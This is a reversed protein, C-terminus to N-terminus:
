KGFHTLFRLLSWHEIGDTSAGDPAHLTVVMKPYNDQIQLLNGFERDHTAQDAILYAVQIYTRENRREAVFDIELNDIQGIWVKYGHSVLHHFICNEMIKGIDAARFGAIANRIGIDQFYYKEGVEFIRKGKIDLRRVVHIIQSHTLYSLYDMITNISISIKQSKLYESIRKANLLSGINDALFRTLRDMFDLNRVSYRTIVDTYVISNFVTRLYDFVVEDTLPLNKLFPMGGYKLFADLAKEDASLGHFTLFESFDLGFVPIEIYRGGLRTSLETSLMESNSGTIYVDFNAKAAFSRISNEFQDIEQVEDVMLYNILGPAETAQTRIYETLVIDTTIHRFDEHERDIFILKGPAKKDMAMLQLLLYSKGVRRQGILVKILPTNM